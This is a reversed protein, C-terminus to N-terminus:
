RSVEPTITVAGAVLTTIRNNNTIQCDWVGRGPTLQSTQDHTLDLDITNDQVTATFEALVPDDFSARIQSLAVSEVLDLPNGDAGYVLLRILIDDGAIFMLDVRQPVAIATRRTWGTRAALPAPHALVQLSM